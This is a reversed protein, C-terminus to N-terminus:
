WQAVHSGSMSIFCVPCVVSIGQAFPIPFYYPQVTIEKRCLRANLHSMNHAIGKLTPFDSCKRIHYLNTVPKGLCYKVGTCGKILDGVKLSFWRRPM